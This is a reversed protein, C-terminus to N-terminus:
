FYFNQKRPISVDEDLYKKTCVQIYIQSNSLIWVTFGGTEPRHKKLQLAQIYLPTEKPNPGSIPTPIFWAQLLSQVPNGALTGSGPGRPASAVKPAVALGSPWGEPL